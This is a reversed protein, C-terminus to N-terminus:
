TSLVVKEEYSTPGLERYQTELVTVDFSIENKRVSEHCYRYRFARAGNEISVARAHPSAHPNTRLTCSWIPSSCSSFASHFPSPSGGCSPFRRHERFSSP